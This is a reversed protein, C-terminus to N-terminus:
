SVSPWSLSPSSALSFQILLYEDFIGAIHSYYAVNRDPKVSTAREYAEAVDIFQQVSMIETANVPIGEGMLSELAILGEPTVPIKPTINPAMAANKRAYAIINASSEDLPDGQISVFGARHGTKEYLPRFCESLELVLKAQLAELVQTNNLGEAIHADIIPLIREREEQVELMKAVYTPNTTCGMAGEAIAARAQEMTPNNVWYKTATLRKVRNFYGDQGKM